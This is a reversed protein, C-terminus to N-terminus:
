CYVKAITVWFLLHGKEWPWLDRSKEFRCTQARHIKLFSQSGKSFTQQCRTTMKNMALQLSNLKTESTLCWFRSKSEKRLYYFTTRFECSLCARWFTTQLLWSITHAIVQWNEPAKAQIQPVSVKGGSKRSRFTRNPIHKYNVIMQIWKISINKLIEYNVQLYNSMNLVDYM